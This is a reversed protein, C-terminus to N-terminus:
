LGLCSPFRKHFYPFNRLDNEVYIESIHQDNYIIWWDGLNMRNCYEKVDNVKAFTVPFVYYKQLLVGKIDAGVGEYFFPFSFEAALQKIPTMDIPNQPNGGKLPNKNNGPHLVQGFLFAEGKNIEEIFKACLEDLEAESYTTSSM